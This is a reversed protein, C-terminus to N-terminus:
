PKLPKGQEQSPDADVQKGKLNNNTVKDGKGQEEGPAKDIGQRHQNEENENDWDLDDDTMDNEKVDEEDLRQSADVFLENGEQREDQNRGAKNEAGAKGPKNKQHQM